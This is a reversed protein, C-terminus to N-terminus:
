IIHLVFDLTSMQKSADSYKAIGGVDLSRPDAHFGAGPTFSNAVVLGIVLALTTVVEFYILAKAGVRGIKKLDGMGALGVVVTSFILPAILMKVLSVFADGLPKLKVGWKPEFYGILGGILIGALVQVYLTNRKRPPNGR